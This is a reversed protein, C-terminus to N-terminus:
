KKDKRLTVRVKKVDVTINDIIFGDQIKEIIESMDTGDFSRISWTDVDSHNMIFAFFHGDVYKWCYLYNSNERNERYWKNFNDADNFFGFAPEDNDTLVTLLVHYSDGDDVINQVSYDRTSRNLFAELSDLFDDKKFYLTRQSFSNQHKLLIVFWRDDIKEMFEINYGNDMDKQIKDSPFSKYGFFFDYDSVNNIKKWVSYFKDKYKFISIPFLNNSSNYKSFYDEIDQGRLTGEYELFSYNGLKIMYDKYPTAKFAEIPKPNPEFGKSIALKRNDLSPHPFLEETENAPNFKMSEVAVYCDNIGGGNAKVLSAAMSDAKLEHARRQALTPNRIFFHRLYIHAFEHAIIFFHSHYKENIDKYQNEDIFLYRNNCNGEFAEAPTGEALDCSIIQINYGILNLAKYIKALQVETLTSSMRYGSTLNCLNDPENCQSNASNFFFIAFVFLPLSNKM